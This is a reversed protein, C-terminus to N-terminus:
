TQPKLWSSDERVIPVDKSINFVLWRSHCVSRASLLGGSSGRGTVSISDGGLAVVSLEGAGELSYQSSTGDSCMLIHESQRVLSGPEKANRDSHMNPVGNFRTRTRYPHSHEGKAVSVRRRLGDNGQGFLRCVRLSYEHEYNRQMTELLRCSVFCEFNAYALCSIVTSSHVNDHENWEQYMRCHAHFITICHKYMLARSFAERFPWFFSDRYTCQM